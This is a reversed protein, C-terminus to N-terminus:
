LELGRVFVEFLKKLLEPFKQGGGWMYSVIKPNTYIQSSRTKLYKYFMGRL